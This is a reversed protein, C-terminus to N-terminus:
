SKGAGGDQANPLLPVVIIFMESDLYSDIEPFFVLFINDREPFFITGRIEVNVTFEVM